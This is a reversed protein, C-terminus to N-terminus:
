LTKIDIRAGGSDNAAFLLHLTLVLLRELAIGASIRKGHSSPADRREPGVPLVQLRLHWELGSNSAFRFDNPGSTLKSSMVM